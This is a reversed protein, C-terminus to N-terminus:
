APLRQVREILRQGTLAEGVHDSRGVSWHRIADPGDEEIARRVEAFAAEETPFSDILNGTEIDYIDYGM